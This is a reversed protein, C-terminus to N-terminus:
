CARTSSAELRLVPRVLRAGRRLRARLVEAHIQTASSAGATVQRRRPRAGRDAPRGPRVRGLGDGELPHLPPEAGRVEWIGEDPEHWRPELSALLSASLAWASHRGARARAPSGPLARGAGRRLRRAPVAHEGRQRRPGAALGRLGDLWPLEFETLRREGALGYMIQIDDPDGAVARLLWARWAGAEEVFGRELLALSRRLERRAALLLPLGLQARRRDAGSALDDARRRHRRDPAYTLAKLVM